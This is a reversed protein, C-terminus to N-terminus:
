AAEQGVWAIRDALQRLHTISSALDLDDPMDWEGYAVERPGECASGCVRGAPSADLTIVRGAETALVLEGSARRAEGNWTIGLAVLRLPDAPRAVDTSPAASQATPPAQPHNPTESVRPHDGSDAGRASRVQSSRTASTANIGPRRAGAGWTTRDGTTSSWTNGMHWRYAYSM